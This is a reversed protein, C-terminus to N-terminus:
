DLRGYHVCKCAGRNFLEDSSLEQVYSSKDNIFKCDSYNHYYYDYKSSHGVTGYVGTNNEIVEDDNDNITKTEQKMDEIQQKLEDITNNLEDITECQKEYNNNLQTYKDECENHEDKISELEEILKNNEQQLEEITIQSENQANVNNAYIDYVTTLACVIAGVMCLRKIGNRKRRKM